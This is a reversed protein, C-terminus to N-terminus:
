DTYGGQYKGVYTTMEDKLALYDKVLQEGKETLRTGGGKAGGVSSEIITEGCRENISAVLDHAHRYSIELNRAAKSLSGCELIEKLLSARGEGIISKGDVEFWLKFHPVAQM